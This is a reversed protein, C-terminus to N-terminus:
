NPAGLIIKGTEDIEYSTRPPQGPAFELLAEGGPKHSGRIKQDIEIDRKTVPRWDKHPGHLTQALGRDLSEQLMIKRRVAGADYGRANPNM